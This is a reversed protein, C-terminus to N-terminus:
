FMIVGWSLIVAFLARASGVHHDMSCSLWYWVSMLRESVMYMPHVSSVTM